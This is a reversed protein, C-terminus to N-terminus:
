WYGKQQHHSIRGIRFSTFVSSSSWFVPMHTSMQAIWHTPLAPGLSIFTEICMKLYNKFISKTTSLGSEKSKASRHINIKRREHSFDDNTHTPKSTPEHIGFTSVQLLSSTLTSSKLSYHCYLSLPTPAARFGVLASAVKTWFLLLCLNKFVM